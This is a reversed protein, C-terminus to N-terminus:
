RFNLNVKKYDNNSGLASQHKEETMPFSLPIFSCLVVRELRILELSILVIDDFNNRTAFTVEMM